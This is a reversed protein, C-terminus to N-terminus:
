IIFRYSFLDIGQEHAAEGIQKWIEKRPAGGPDKYGDLEMRIVADLGFQLRLALKDREGDADGPDLLVIALRWSWRLRRMQEDSLGKGLTAVACRGVAMADFTGECVVVLDGKRAWDYNFFVSGKTMGPATFYKPPRVIDGDEDRMFGLADCQKEDLKDPDYLLRSQWGRLKGDMWIPFILTNTTNFIGGFVRGSACYRVGFVNNLEVLDFKRQKIYQVAPHDPSLSQLSQLEGPPEIDEPLPVHVPPAVEPRAYKGRGLIDEIRGTEGCRFCIYLGRNPNIYLKQRKSCFLCDVIYELGNKGRSRKVTGFKRRLLPELVTPNMTSM